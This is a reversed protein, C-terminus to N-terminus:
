INAGGATLTDVFTNSSDGSNIDVPLLTSSAEGSYLIRNRVHLIKQGLFAYRAQRTGFYIDSVDNSNLEINAM